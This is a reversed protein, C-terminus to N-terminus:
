STLHDGHLTGKAKIKFNEFIEINPPKAAMKKIFLPCNVLDQGPRKYAIILNM